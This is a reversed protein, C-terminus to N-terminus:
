KEDIKIMAVTGAVSGDVLAFFIQGGPEIISARPDDLQERDHQEIEYYKAIWEYNLRGFDERYEDTYEIIQVSKYRDLEEVIRRADHLMNDSVSKLRTVVANFGLETLFDDNRMM